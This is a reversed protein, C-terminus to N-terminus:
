KDNSIERKEEELYDWQITNETNTICAAIAEHHYPYKKYGIIDFQKANRYQEPDKIKLTELDWLESKGMSCNNDKYRHVVSDLVFHTPCIMDEHTESSSLVCCLGHGRLLLIYKRLEYYDEIKNKM